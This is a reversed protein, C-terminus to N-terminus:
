RISFFLARYRPVFLLWLFLVDFVTQIIPVMLPNSQGDAISPPGVFTTTVFNGTHDVISIAWYIVLASWTMLGRRAWTAWILPAAFVAALLDLYAPFRWAESAAGADIDNILVLAIFRSIQLFIWVMTGILFTKQAGTLDRMGRTPLSSM